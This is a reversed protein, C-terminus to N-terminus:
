PTPFCVLEIKKIARTSAIIVELWLALKEQTVFAM